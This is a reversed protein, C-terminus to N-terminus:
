LLLLLRDFGEAVGEVELLLLPAPPGERGGLWVREKVRRERDPDVDLLEM